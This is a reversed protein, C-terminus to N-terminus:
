GPLYLVPLIRSTMLKFPLNTNVGSGTVAMNAFDRVRIGMSVNCAYLQGPRNGSQSCSSPPLCVSALLEAVSMSSRPSIPSVFHSGLSLLVSVIVQLQVAELVANLYASEM